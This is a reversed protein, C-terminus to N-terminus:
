INNRTLQCLNIIRLHESLKKRQKLKITEIHLNGGLIAEPKNKNEKESFDKSIVKNRSYNIFYIM